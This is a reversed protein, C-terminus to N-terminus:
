VSKGADMACAVTGSALLGATAAITSRQPLNAGFIAHQPPRTIGIIKKNQRHKKNNHLMMAQSQQSIATASRRAHPRARMIRLLVNATRPTELPLGHIRDSSGDECAMVSRVGQYVCDGSGRYVQPCPLASLRSGSTHTTEAMPAFHWCLIKRSTIPLLEGHRM